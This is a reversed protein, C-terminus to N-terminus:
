KDIMAGQGSGHDIAAVEEGGLAARFGLRHQGGARPDCEGGTGGILIMAADPGYEVLYEGFIGVHDQEVATVRGAAFVDGRKPCPCALDDM